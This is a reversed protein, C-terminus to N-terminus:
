IRWKPAFPGEEPLRNELLIQHAWTEREIRPIQYEIYAIKAIASKGEFLVEHVGSQLVIKRPLSLVDIRLPHWTEEVEALPESSITTQLEGTDTNRTINMRTWDHDPFEPLQPILLHSWCMTDDDFVTTPITVYHVRKNARIRYSGTEDNILQNLVEIDDKPITKM